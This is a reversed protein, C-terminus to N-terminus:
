VATQPEIYWRLLYTTLSVLPPGLDPGSTEWALWIVPVYAVAGLVFGLFCVTATTLPLWKSIVFLAPLFVVVTTSYSIVCAPILLIFFSRMPPVNYLDNVFAASVVTAALLPALLIGKWSFRM